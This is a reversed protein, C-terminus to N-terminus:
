FIIAYITFTIDDTKKHANDIKFCIFICYIITDIVQLTWAVTGKWYLFFFVAFNTFVLTCKYERLTSGSVTRSVYFNYM